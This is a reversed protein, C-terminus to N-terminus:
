LFEDMTQIYHGVSIGKWIAHSNCKGSNTYLDAIKACGFCQMKHNADYVSFYKSNYVSPLVIPAYDTFMGRRGRFGIYQNTSFHYFLFGATSKKGGGDHLRDKKIGAFDGFADFGFKGYDLVQANNITTIPADHPLQYNKMGPDIAARVIVSSASHERAVKLLTPYLSMVCLEEDIKDHDIDLLVIDGHKLVTAIDQLASFFNTKYLRFALRGFLPRLESAQKPIPNASSAIKPYDQRTQYTIVPVLNPVDVLEKFLGIRDDVESAKILFSAYNTRMKSDTTDLYTPFDVMFPFKLKGLDQSNISKFTGKMKVNPKEAVIEILPMVKESVQITSLVDREQQRYRVVPVYKFVRVGEKM